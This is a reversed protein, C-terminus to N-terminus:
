YDVLRCNPPQPYKVKACKTIIEFLPSNPTPKFDHYGFGFGVATQSGVLFASKRCLLPRTKIFPCRQAVLVWVESITALIHVEPKLIDSLPSAPIPREREDELDHPLLETRTVVLDFIRPLGQAVYQMHFGADELVEQRLVVDIACSTAAFFASNARSWLNAVAWASTFAARVRADKVPTFPGAGSNSNSWSRPFAEGPPEAHRNAM